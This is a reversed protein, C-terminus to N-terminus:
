LCIMLLSLPPVRDEWNDEDWTPHGSSSHDRRRAMQPACAHGSSCSALAHTNIDQVPSYLRMLGRHGRPMGFLMSREKVDTHYKWLCFLNRLFLHTFSSSVLCQSHIVWKSILFVMDPILDFRNTLMSRIIKDVNELLSAWFLLNLLTTRGSIHLVM